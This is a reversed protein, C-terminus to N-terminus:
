LRHAHQEAGARVRAEGVRLAAVREVRRELRAVEEATWLNRLQEHAVAAARATTCPLPAAFLGASPPSAACCGTAGFLPVSDPAAAESASASASAVALGRCIGCAAPPPCFVSAAGTSRRPALVPRLVAVIRLAVQALVGEGHKLPPVM